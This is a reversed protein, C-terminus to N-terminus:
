RRQRYSLLNGYKEKLSCVPKTALIDALTPTGPSLCKLPLPFTSSDSNNSQSLPVPSRRSGRLNTYSPTLQSLTHSSSPTIGMSFSPSLALAPPPSSPINSPPSQSPPHSSPTVCVQSTLPNSKTHFPSPAQSPTTSTPNSISPPPQSLSPLTCVIGPSPPLVPSSAQMPSNKSPTKPQSLPHYGIPLFSPPPASPPSTSSPFTNSPHSFPTACTQFSQSSTTNDTLFSTPSQSTAEKQSSDPCNTPSPDSTNLKPNSSARRRRRSSSSSTFMQSFLDISTDDNTEQFANIPLKEPPPPTTLTSVNPPQDPFAAVATLDYDLAQVSSKAYTWTKWTLPDCNAAKKWASLSFVSQSVPPQQQAIPSPPTPHDHTTTTSAPYVRKRLSGSSEEEEDAEPEADRKRKKTTNKDETDKDDGNKEKKVAGGETKMKHKSDKYPSDEVKGRVKKPVDEGIQTAPPRVTFHSTRSPSNSKHPLLAASPSSPGRDSTSLRLHKYFQVVKPDAQIRSLTLGRLRLSELSTARSLAVYAQGFEFVNDAQVELRDISMGQAKLITLGWALMLPIQKRAALVDDKPKIEWKKTELTAIRGSVFRVRPLGGGGKEDSTIGDFDLVVGRSGNALGGKTDVNWLLIVQAGEKLVLKNSAPCHDQLQRWHASGPTGTDVALFTHEQGPLAALRESNYDEVNFRRSFLRTTEIGDSCDLVRNTCEDLIAKTETSVTGVRIESLLRIFKTDSQRYITKLEVTQQVVKNWANAEFAFVKTRAQSVPPLQFFDGCLVLQMGGFPLSKKRVQRAIYELKDFLNGDVM